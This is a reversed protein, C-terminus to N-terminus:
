PWKVYSRRCMCLSEGSGQKGVLKEKKSVILHWSFCHSLLSFKVVYVGGRMKSLADNNTDGPPLQLYM